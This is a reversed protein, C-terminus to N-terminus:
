TSIYIYVSISIIKHLHLFIMYYSIMDLTHITTKGLKIDCSASSVSSNHVGIDDEFIYLWQRMDGQTMSFARLIDFFAVTLSAYKRMRDNQPLSSSNIGTADMFKLQLNPDNYHLPTHRKVTFGTGLLLEKTSEFRTDNISIVVASLPGNERNCDTNSFERCLDTAHLSSPPAVVLLLLLSIVIFLIPYTMRYNM